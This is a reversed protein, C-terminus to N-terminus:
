RGSRDRLAMRRLDDYVLDILQDLADRDGQAWRNALRTVEGQRDDQLPLGSSTVTRGTPLLPVRQPNHIRPRRDNWAANSM